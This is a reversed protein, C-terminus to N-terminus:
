CLGRRVSTCNSCVTNGSALLIHNTTIVKDDVVTHTVVHRQMQQKNGNDVDRDDTLRKLKFVDLPHWRKRISSKAPSILHFYM